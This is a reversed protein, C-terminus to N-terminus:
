RRPKWWVQSVVAVSPWRAIWVFSFAKFLAWAAAAWVLMLGVAETRAPAPASLGLLLLVLGINYAAVQTRAGKEFAVLHLRRLEGGVPKEMPLLFAWAGLIAQVVTGGALGVLWLNRTAAENGFGLSGVQLVTVVFLWCVAALLHLASVPVPFRRPSRAVAYAIRGFPVMGAGFGAAGAAALLPLDFTLGTAVTLLGGFTAWPAWPRVNLARVRLVAPLLTIATGAITMVAWGLLNFAMHVLRHSLRSEADSLVGLALTAGASGGVLISIGALRYYIRTERFRTGLGKRWQADAVLVSWLTGSLFGAAGVGVLPVFGSLRGAAILAAGLNLLGLSGLLHYRPPPPAMALTSSFKIQGGAILQSASGLLLMHVPLWWGLRLQPPLLCGLLAGAFWLRATLHHPTM